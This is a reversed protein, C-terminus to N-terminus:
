KTVCLSKLYKSGNIDIVIQYIGSCLQSINLITNNQANNYKIVCEGLSNYISINFPSDYNNLNIQFMDSAPNPIITLNNDATIDSVNQPPLPDGESYKALFGKPKAVVSVNNNFIIKSYNDAVGTVYFSNSNNHLLQRLTVTANGTYIPTGWLNNGEDDVKVIFGSYYPQHLPKNVLTDGQCLLLNDYTRGCLYINKNYHNVCTLFTEVDSTYTNSWLYNGSPDLKLLLGKTDKFAKHRHEIIPKSNLLLTDSSYDGAFLMNNDDDTAVSNIINDGNGTFSYNYGKTDKQSVTAYYTDGSRKRETYYFSNIKDLNITNIKSFCFASDPSYFWIQNGDKDFEAISVENAAYFNGLQDTILTTYYNNRTRHAWICTGSSDYHAIFANYNNHLPGQFFISSSLTLSDLYSGIVYLGNKNDSCIADIYSQSNSLVVAWIRQGEPNYKNIFGGICTQYQSPLYDQNGTVDYSGGEYVNGASDIVIQSSSQIPIAWQCQQGYSCFTLAILLIFSSVIFKM